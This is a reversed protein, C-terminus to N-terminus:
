DMGVRARAYVAAARNSVTSGIDLMLPVEAKRSLWMGGGLDTAGNSLDRRYLQVCRRFLRHHTLAEDLTGQEYDQRAVAELYLAGCSFQCLDM